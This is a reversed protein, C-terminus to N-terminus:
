DDAVDPERLRLVGSPGRAAHGRISLGRQACKCRCNSSSGADHDGSNSPIMRTASSWMSPDPCRRLMGTKMACSSLNATTRYATVDLVFEGPPAQFPVDVRLSWIGDGAKEDPDLGDDRLKFKVRTDERVVGEVRDVIGFRDVIEVTIVASDGPKLEPPEIFAQRMVPQRGMTNCGAALALLVLTTCVLRFRQM